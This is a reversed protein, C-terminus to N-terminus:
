VFGFFMATDLTLDVTRDKGSCFKALREFYTALEEHTSVVPGLRLKENFMEQVAETAYQVSDLTIKQRNLTETLQNYKEQLGVLQKRHSIAMRTCQDALDQAPFPMTFTIAPTAM